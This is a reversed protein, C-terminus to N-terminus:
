FIVELIELLQPFEASKLVQQQDLRTSIHKLLSYQVIVFDKTLDKFDLVMLLRRVVEYLDLRFSISFQPCIELICALNELVWKMNGDILDQFVSDM